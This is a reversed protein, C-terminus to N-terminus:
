ARGHYEVVAALDDLPVEHSIMARVNIGLNFISGDSFFGARTVLIVKAEPWRFGVLDAIALASGESLLIDIIVVDYGHEQVLLEAQDATAALDVRAGGRRLHAQWLAGLDPSSEVILINM